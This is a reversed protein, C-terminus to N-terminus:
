GDKRHSVIRDWLRAMAVPDNTTIQDVGTALIAPLVDGIEPMTPDLTWIDVSAGSEKLRAVPDVGSALARLVLRYNLYFSAATPATAMVEDVFAAMRERDALDRGRALDLPDFGLRLLPVAAGLHQVADWQTGSLLCREAVPGIAAAFADVAGSSLGQRPEKLDLQLCAGRDVAAAVERAIDALLPPAYEAGSIRLRNIAAADAEDVRGHGDTEKDLVDDHLSVWAGDALARIDIELSAGAALGVRLNAISFPPDARHRRLKHWKLLVRRGELAIGVGHPEDALDGARLDRHQTTM